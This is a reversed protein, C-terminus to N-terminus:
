TRAKRNWKKTKALNEILKEWKSLNIVQEFLGRRPIGAQHLLVQRITIDEKGFCGFEPWYDAVYGDLEILGEDILKFICMSIFPKSISFTLFRTEPSVRQKKRLDAYGGFRDLVIHGNRMVTLQAGPNIGDPVLDDFVASIRQIGERSM